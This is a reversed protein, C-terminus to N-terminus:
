QDDPRRIRDQHDPYTDVEVTAADGPRGYTLDTERINSDAWANQSGVMNMAQQGAALYAGIDVTNVNTV